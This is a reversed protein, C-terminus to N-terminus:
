KIKRFEWMEKLILSDLEPAGEKICGEVEKIFEGALIWPMIVINEEETKLCGKRNM